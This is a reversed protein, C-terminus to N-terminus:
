SEAQLRGRNQVSERRAAVDEPRVRRLHEASVRTELRLAEGYPLAFGDDILRKYGRLSAPDCSLMDQALRRCTPLLEEAAVVRNVLGWTCAQEADIYNGTFALEKARSIGILRPLLQSLAWGPLIGVRAHTDAFRADRSAVILDCALALEFGGTIAFGNVAGIVPGPFRRVSEIMEDATFEPRRREGSSLEKLDVGACFARGAGTLIAVRVEGAEALGRFARTIDDCLATSLANMAEPRDLTLTAVAGDREVRVLAM